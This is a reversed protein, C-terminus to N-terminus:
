AKLGALLKEHLGGFGGNSLVCIIDGPKAAATAHAAISKADPLYASETGNAQLAEMLAGPDLRDDEPLQDLRAVEAVVVADAESLAEVLYDQFVARRTTNSRPEFIAWVRRGPFRVRVAKLTEAIATPHHAFDDIVMVGSVEGRVEM